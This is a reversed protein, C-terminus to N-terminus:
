NELTFSLLCHAPLWDIHTRIFVSLVTKRCFCVCTSSTLSVTLCTKKKLWSLSPKWLVKQATWCVLQYKSCEINELRFDKFVDATLRNPIKKWKITFSLQFCCVVASSSKGAIIHKICVSM